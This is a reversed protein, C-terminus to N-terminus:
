YFDKKEGQSVFPETSNWQSQPIAQKIALHFTGLIFGAEFDHWKIHFDKWMIGATISSTPVPFQFPPNVHEFINVKEM